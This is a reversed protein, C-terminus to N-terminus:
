RPIAWHALGARMRLLQRYFEVAFGVVQRARARRVGAEKGAADVFACLEQALSVSALQPKALATLLQQRFEV